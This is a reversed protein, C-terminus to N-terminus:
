VEEAFHPSRKKFFWAGSVVVIVVILIPAFSLLIDGSLSYLTPNIPDILAHRTDQIAQTVPNILLIKAMSEGAQEIVIAIPYMVASGYFLAQLIIEWIYNMDRLRVFVASLIFAIGIGFLFLELIYFPTLIASWSLDVGSVVMFIAIVILNLALNILASISSALVIVYKPFNIKRIVDGRSVISNLGNSTIETFFNWLVIGLLMSVPWNPIGEGIKLFYVFVFYLIVFLFLPKLLSWLYGLVSGQYRLKFETIVLERLLILSYHYKNYLNSLMTQRKYNYWRM